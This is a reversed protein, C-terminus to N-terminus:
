VCPRHEATTSTRPKRYFLQHHHAVTNSTRPKVIFVWPRLKALWPLTLPKRNFYIPRCPPFSPNVHPFPTPLPFPFPAPFPASLFPCLPFCPSSFSLLLVSPRFILIALKSLPKPTLFRGNQRPTPTKKLDVEGQRSLINTQCKFDCFRPMIFFTAM